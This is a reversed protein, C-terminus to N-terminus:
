PTNPSYSASLAMRIMKETEKIQEVVSKLDELKTDRVKQRVLERLANEITAFYGVVEWDEYVGGSKKKREKKRSLIVNLSDSKIEWDNGIKM